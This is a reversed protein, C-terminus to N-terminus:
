DNLSAEMANQLEREAVRLRSDKGHKFDKFATFFRIVRLKGRRPVVIALPTHEVIGAVALWLAGEPGKRSWPHSRNLTVTRHSWRAVWNSEIHSKWLPSDTYVVLLDKGPYTRRFRRGLLRRYWRRAVDVLIVVGLAIAGVRLSVRGVAVALVVMGILFTACGILGVWDGLSFRKPVKPM